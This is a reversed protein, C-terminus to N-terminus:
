IEHDMQHSSWTESKPQNIPHCGSEVQANVAANALAARSTRPRLRWSSFNSMIETMFQLLFFVFLYNPFYFNILIVIFQHTQRGTFQLTNFCLTFDRQQPGIGWASLAGSRCCKFCYIMNIHFFRPCFFSFEWNQFKKCTTGMLNQFDIRWKPDSKLQRLACWSV